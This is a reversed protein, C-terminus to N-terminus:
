VIMINETDEKQISIYSQNTSTITKLIYHSLEGEEVGKACKPAGKETYRTTRSSTTDWAIGIKFCRKFAGEKTDRRM